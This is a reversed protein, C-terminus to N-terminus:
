RTLFGCLAGSGLWEGRKPGEILMSEYQSNSADSRTASLNCIGLAVIASIAVKKWM